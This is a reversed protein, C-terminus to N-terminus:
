TTDVGDAQTALVNPLASQIEYKASVACPAAL